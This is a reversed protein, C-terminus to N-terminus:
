ALKVSEVAPGSVWGPEDNLLPNSLDVRKCTCLQYAFKDTPAGDGGKECGKGGFPGVFLEDKSGDMPAKDRTFASCGQGCGGPADCYTFANATTGLRNKRNYCATACGYPSRVYPSGHNGGEGMKWSDVDFVVIDDPGAVYNIRAAGPVGAIAPAPQGPAPCPPPIEKWRQMGSMFGSRWAQGDGSCSYSEAFNFPPTDWKKAHCTGATYGGECTPGACWNYGFCGDTEACM